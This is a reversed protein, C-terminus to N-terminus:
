QGQFLIQLKAVAHYLRHACQLGLGEHLYASGSTLHGQGSRIGGVLKASM